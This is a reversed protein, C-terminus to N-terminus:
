ELGGALRALLLSASEGDILDGPACFRVTNIELGVGEDQQTYRQNELIRSLVSDSGVDDTKPLLLWLKKRSAHVILDTTRLLARIRVVFEDMLESVRRRGISDTLETLNTLRVGLLSFTVDPYRQHLRLLWGVIAEFIAPNVNDLSDLMAYIDEIMGTKVAALGQETIEFSFVRHPLLNDPQSRTACHQCHAVVEPEEFMHGCSNCCYSELARDYDAGIHRLRTKCNPCGLVGKELFSEEPSVHGCVFCHLFPKRVIDISGCSTCVDVYNLHANECVPCLRIRDKLESRRLLGREVLNNLRHQTNEAEGLLADVLPFRYLAPYSWHHKPEYTLHPRAYLYALLRFILADRDTLLTSDLKSLRDHIERAQHYASEISDAVGDVLNAANGEISSLLFVPKVATEPRGRLVLLASEVAKPDVCEVAVGMLEGPISFLMEVSSCCTVPIDFSHRDNSKSQDLALYVFEATM